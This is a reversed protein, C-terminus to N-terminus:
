ATVGRILPRAKRAYWNAFLAAADELSPVEDCDLLTLLLRAQAEYLLRGAEPLADWAEVAGEYPRGVLFLERAAEPMPRGEMRTLAAPGRNAAVLFPAQEEYTLLDWARAPAPDFAAVAQAAMAYLTRAIEITELRGADIM